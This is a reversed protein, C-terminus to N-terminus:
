ACDQVLFIAGNYVSMLKGNSEIRYNGTPALDFPNESNLLQVTPIGFTVTQYIYYTGVTCSNVCPDPGYCLEIPTFPSAIPNCCEYAQVEIWNGNKPKIRRLVTSGPVIRGTGDFRSYAKLDRKNTM